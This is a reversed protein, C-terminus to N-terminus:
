QVTIDRRRSEALYEELFTSPEGETARIVAVDLVEERLEPDELIREIVVDREAKSLSQLAMLFVEARNTKGNLSVGSEM